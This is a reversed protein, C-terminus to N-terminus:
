GARAKAAAQKYDEPTEGRLHPELIEEIGKYAYPDDGCVMVIDRMDEKLEIRGGWSWPLLSEASMTHIVLARRFRDTTTNDLSRHLLYGNFFVASGAMVEVPVADEETFPYGYSSQTPGSIRPDQNPAMRWIIGPHHSGPIVWLGGNEIDADDLAIWVGCLSRDRTPIFYEDQHWGQGRNGPGKVFLMTQMCKVNPGIIAQLVEVLAAHTILDRMTSSIKHPYHLALYRKLTEAESEGPDGPIVGRIEAKGKFLAFAEQKLADIDKSPILGDAVLYGNERYFDAHAAEIKGETARM